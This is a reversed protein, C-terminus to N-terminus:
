SQTSEKNCPRVAIVKYRKGNAGRVFEMYNDANIRIDRTRQADVQVTIWYDAMIM